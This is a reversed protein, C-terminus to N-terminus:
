PTPEVVTTWVDYNSGAVTDRRWPGAGAFAARIVAGKGQAEFTPRLLATLRVPATTRFHLGALKKIPVFDLNSETWVRGPFDLATAADAIYWVDTVPGYRGVLTREVPALDMSALLPNYFGSPGVTYTRPLRTIKGAVAVAGYLVPVVIFLIAMTVALLRRRANAASVYAVPLVALSAPLVHRAEYDAADSFTWTAMMALLTVGFLALALRAAPAAMIAPRRMAAFVFWLLVLGPLVGVYAIALPDSTLPHGPHMLLYRWLSDADAVALAPNAILAVLSQWHPFFRATQAANNM